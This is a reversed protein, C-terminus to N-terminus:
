PSEHIKRKVYKRLENLFETGSKELMYLFSPPKVVNSEILAERISHANLDFELLKRNKIVFVKDAIWLVEPDHKSVVVSRGESKVKLVYKLVRWYSQHDLFTLPEDMLVYKPRYVEISAITVLRKQGMSLRLTKKDALDSIGFESLVELVRERVESESLGLTRLSYAVEDYVTPNFLQVDPDQFTLGILPRLRAKTRDNWELGDIRLIGELPKLLGALTLLLTTKGSGTPGVLAAIEGERVKFEIDRVIPAGYGITGREFSIM